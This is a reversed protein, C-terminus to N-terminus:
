RWDALSRVLSDLALGSAMVVKCSIRRASQVIHTKCGPDFRDRAVSEKQTEKKKAAGSAPQARAGQCEPSRASGSGRLARLPTVVCSPISGHGMRIRGRRFAAVFVAYQNEVGRQAVALLTGASRHGEFFLELDGFEEVFHTDIDDFRAKRDGRLAVEFRDGFDRAAGLIRDDASQRAGGENDRAAKLSMSRQASATLNACRGRM